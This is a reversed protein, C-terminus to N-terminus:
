GSHQVLGPRQGNRVFLQYQFSILVCIEHSHAPASSKGDCLGWDSGGEAAGTDGSYWIWSLTRRGEGVSVAGQLPATRLTGVSKGLSRVFEVEAEEEANLRRENLGVLDTDLLPKLISEWDGPGRLEYVAACAVRYHTAANTVAEEVSSQMTRARTGTRQGTVNVVKDQVYVTRMRLSHRLDSLADFADAYQLDNEIEILQESCIAARESSHIDSPLIIPYTEVDDPSLPHDSPPALPMYATQMEQFAQIRRLLAAVRKQFQVQQLVTISEKRQASVSGVIRLFELSRIRIM